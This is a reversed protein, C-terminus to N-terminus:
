WRRLGDSWVGREKVEQNYADIASRNETLWRRAADERLSRELLASLNVGDRRAEDLLAADVSLNVPKKTAMRMIYACYLAPDIM